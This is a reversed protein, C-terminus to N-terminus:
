KGFLILVIGAIISFITGVFMKGYNEMKDLREHFNNMNTKGIACNTHINDIKQEINEIKKYIDKNTIKIFTNDKTSL